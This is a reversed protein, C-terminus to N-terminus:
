QQERDGRRGPLGSVQPPAQERWYVERRSKYAYRVRRLGSQVYIHVVSRQIPLIDAELQRPVDFIAYRGLYDDHVDRGSENAGPQM